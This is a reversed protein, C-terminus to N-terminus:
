EWFLAVTVATSGLAHITTQIGDGLPLYTHQVGFNNAQFPGLEGIDAHEYAVCMETYRVKGLLVTPVLLAVDAGVTSRQGGTPVVPLGGSVPAPVSGAAPIVQYQSSGSRWSYTVIGDATPTGTADVTRGVIVGQSFGSTTPDLNTCVALGRGNGSIYTALKDGNAKSNASLLQNRTNAQGNIAGAGNTGTGVTVAVQPRDAAAGVGYELKIFVPLTAQMADTFKWIEYGAVGNAAPRAVTTWDIQGTDASKVLGTAAIADSVGKGWTRFDADGSLYAPLSLTQTAM